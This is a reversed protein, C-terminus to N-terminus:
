VNCTNLAKLALIDDREVVPKRSGLELWLEELQTLTAVAQFVGRGGEVSLELAALSPVLRALLPIADGDAALCLSRLRSFPMGAPSLDCSTSSGALSAIERFTEPQAEPVACDLKLQTLRRHQACYCLLRHM